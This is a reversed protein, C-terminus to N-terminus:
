IGRRLRRRTPGRPYVPDEVRIPCCCSCAGGDAVRLRMVAVPLGEPTPAPPVCPRARASAIRRHSPCERVSGSSHPTQPLFLPPPPTRSSVWGDSKPGVRVGARKYNRPACNQLDFQLWPARGPKPLGARVRSTWRRGKKKKRDNDRKKKKETTETRQRGVTAARTDHNTTNPPQPARCFPSGARRRRPHGRM